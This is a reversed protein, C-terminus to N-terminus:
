LAWLLGHTGQRVTMTASLANPGAQLQLTGNASPVLVGTIQACYDDGVALVATSAVLDGSFNITGFQLASTGDAGFPIQAQATFVTFAPCTLGLRVGALLGTSRVVVGLDFRYRVGATVAFGMGTVNAMAPLVLLSTFTQDATLVLRSPGYGAPGM